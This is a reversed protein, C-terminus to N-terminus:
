KDMGTHIGTQIEMAKYYIRVNLRDETQTNKKWQAEDTRSQALQSECKFIQILKDFEIVFCVLVVFSTQIKITNM